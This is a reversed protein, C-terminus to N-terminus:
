DKAPLQIDVPDLLEKAGIKSPLFAEPPSCFM